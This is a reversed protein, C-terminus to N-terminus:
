SDLRRSDPSEDAECQGVGNLQLATLWLYDGSPLDRLQEALESLGVGEVRLAAAHGRPVFDISERYWHVEQLTLSISGVMGLDETEHESGHKHVRCLRLSSFTTGVPIDHDGNRGLILGEPTISDVLFELM